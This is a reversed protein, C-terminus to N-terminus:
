LRDYKEKAMRRMEMMTWLCLGGFVLSAAVDYYGSGCLFFFAYVMAAGFMALTLECISEIIFKFTKM